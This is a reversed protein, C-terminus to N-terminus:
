DGRSVCRRCRGRERLGATRACRAHCTARGTAAPPVRARPPAGGDAVSSCHGRRHKAHKGGAPVRGGFEGPWLLRASILPPIRRRSLSSQRQNLTYLNLCRYNHICVYMCVYVCVYVCVCVCVYLCIYIYIYMCVYICIYTYINCVYMSAYIYIYIYIQKNTYTHKM